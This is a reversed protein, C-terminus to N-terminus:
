GKGDKKEPAASLMATALRWPDYAEEPVGIVWSSGDTKRCAIFVIGEHEQTVVARRNKGKALLAAAKAEAESVAASTEEELAQLIAERNARIEERVAEPIESSASAEIKGALTRRVKIGRSRLDALIIQGSAKRM